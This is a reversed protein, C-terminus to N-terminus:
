SVVIRLITSCALFCGLLWAFFYALFSALLCRPVLDGISVIFSHGLLSAGRLRPAASGYAVICDLLCPDCRM